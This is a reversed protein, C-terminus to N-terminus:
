SRRTNESMLGKMAAGVARVVDEGKQWSENHDGTIEFVECKRRNDDGEVDDKEFVERMLDAQGWPVLTDEKSAAIVLVKVEEAYVDEGYSAPSMAAYVRKREEESIGLADTACSFM